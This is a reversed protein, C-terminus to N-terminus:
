QKEWLHYEGQYFYALNIEEKSHLLAVVDKDMEMPFKSKIYGCIVTLQMEFVELLSLGALSLLRPSYDEKIDDIVIVIKDTTSVNEPLKFFKRLSGDLDYRMWVWQHNGPNRMIYDVRAELLYYDLLSVEYDLYADVKGQILRGPIAGYGLVPIFCLGVGLLLVALLKKGRM